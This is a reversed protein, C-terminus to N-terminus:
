VLINGHCDLIHHIEVNGADTCFIAQCKHPGGPGFEVFCERKDIRPTKLIRGDCVDPILPNGHRTEIGHRLTFVYKHCLFSSGRWSPAVDVCALLIFFCASHMRPLWLSYLVHNFCLKVHFSLVFQFEKSSPESFTPITDTILQVARNM